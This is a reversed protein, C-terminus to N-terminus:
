YNVDRLLKLQYVPQIIKICFFFVGKGKGHGTGFYEWKMQCGNFLGPYRAVFYMPRCAKFQAVCSDSFVIHRRPQVNNDLLWRWHLHFCHQVFLTDHEKDDSIYFHADKLIKLESGGDAYDPNRRYCIHVLITVQNSQWHMSQIENQVQFFYNEAFDIHSLISGEPLTEMALRCQMDQWTAVYNHKIFKQLNPRFYAIFELVSTEKHVEQIKKRTEGTETNTGIDVKEFRPWSVMGDGFEENPCLQLLIEVRCDSCEGLLCGRRYFDAGEPKPCLCAQWLISIGGYTFSSGTCSGGEFEDSGCVQCNCSCQPRHLTRSLRMRNFADKLM